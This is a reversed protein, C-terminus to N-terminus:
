ENELEKILRLTEGADTEDLPIEHLMLELGTVLLGREDETFLESRKSSMSMGLWAWLILSTLSWM